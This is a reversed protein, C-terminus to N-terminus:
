PLSAIKRRSNFASIAFLATTSVIWDATFFSEAAKRYAVALQSVAPTPFVALLLGILGLSVVCLLFLTRAQELDAPTIQDIVEYGDITSEGPLGIAGDVNLMMTLLDFMPATDRGKETDDLIISPINKNEETGWYGRLCIDSSLDRPLALGAAVLDPDSRPLQNIRIARKADSARELDKYHDTWWPSGREQRKIMRRFESKLATRLRQFPFDTGLVWLGIVLQNSRVAGVSRLALIKRVIDATTEPFNWDPSVGRRIGHAKAGKFFKRSIWSEFVSESVPALGLGVACENALALLDAKSYQM